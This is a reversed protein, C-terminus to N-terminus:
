WGTPAHPNRRNVVEPSQKTAETQEEGQEQEIDAHHRGDRDGFDLRDQAVSTFSTTLMSMMSFTICSARGRARRPMAPIQVSSCPRILAARLARSLPKVFNSAIVGKGTCPKSSAQPILNDQNGQTVKTKPRAPKVKPVQNVQHTAATSQGIMI